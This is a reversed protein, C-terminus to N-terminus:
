IPLRSYLVTLKREAFQAVLFTAAIALFPALDLKAIRLPLWSLPLLLNRGTASVFRWFPHDGLYVYSSLVYLLLLAYLLYQWWLYVGLGITAAQELRHLMSASPPIIKSSALFPNIAIWFVAVVFFPLALKLPWWWRDVFGLHFAALKQLPGPDNKSHNVISFLLLWLYFLALISGFSFISYLL